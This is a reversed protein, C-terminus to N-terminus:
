THLDLSHINSAGVPNVDIHHVAAKHWVDGNAWQNDLGQAWDSVLNQVAMQYTCLNLHPGHRRQTATSILRMFHGTQGAESCIITSGSSRTGSKALAPASIMETWQSPADVMWKCLVTFWTLM